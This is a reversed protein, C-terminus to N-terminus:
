EKDKQKEKKALMRFQLGMEITGSIIGRQESTPTCYLFAIQWKDKYLYSAGLSYSQNSHYMANVQLPEVFMASAGIDVISKYNHIGRYVIKPNITLAQSVPFRYSAAAFFIQYDSADQFEKNLIKRLNFSSFQVLFGKNGYAIGADADWTSNRSNFSHVMEDSPSGVMTSYDLMAKTWGLSFGLHLNEDTGGLKIHYAYTGMARTQTLLGTKQTHMTLGVAVNGDFRYDGTLYMTKPSGPVQNGQSMYGTNMVLENNRLGAMAPNALYQNLFYQSEIPNLQQARVSIALSLCIVIIEVKIIISKM